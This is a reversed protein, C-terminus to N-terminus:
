PKRAVVACVAYARAGVPWLWPGSIEPPGAAGLGQLADRIAVPNTGTFFNRQEILQPIAASLQAPTMAALRPVTASSVFDTVLVVVGAPKTWHWLLQLHRNRVAFLLELFRPHSETKTLVVSDILQSLLCCSAVVDFPEDELSPTAQKANAIVHSFDEDKLNTHGKWAALDAAVGSVDLAPHVLLHSSVSDTNGGRPALRGREAGSVQKSAYSLAEEDIDVLHVSEYHRILEVLDLDNCNGAGLLCLSPSSPSAVNLLLRTVTQRHDAYENWRPRTERNRRRQEDLIRHDM